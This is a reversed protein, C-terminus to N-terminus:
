KLVREIMWDLKKLFFSDRSYGTEQFCINGKGDLVYLQPIMNTKYPEEITGDTLLIPFTYGREKAFGPVGGKDSDTSIALMALNTNDRYKGWAAKWEELEAICPSCWTAWFTLVVAKRRLQVLSIMNGNLDKLRFLAAPRHQESSILAARM